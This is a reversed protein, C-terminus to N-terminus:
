VEVIKVIEVVEIPSAARLDMVGGGRKIWETQLTLGFCINRVIRGKSVKSRAQM